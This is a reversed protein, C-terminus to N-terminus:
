KRNHVIRRGALKATLPGPPSHFVKIIDGKCFYLVCVMMKLCTSKKLNQKTKNQKIAAMEEKFTLDKPKITYSYLSEKKLM